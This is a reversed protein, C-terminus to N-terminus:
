IEIPHLLPEDVCILQWSRDIGSVPLLYVSEYDHGMSAAVVIPCRGLLDTCLVRAPFMCGDTKLAYFKGEPPDITIGM